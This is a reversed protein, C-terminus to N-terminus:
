RAHPPQLLISADGYGRAVAADRTRQAEALTAFPGVRVRWVAGATEVQGGFSRAVEVARPESSFAAVQVLLPQGARPVPMAAPAIRPPPRTSATTAPLLRRLARLLPEPTDLRAAAAEGRDLAAADALSPTMSRVRVPALPRDSLGLLRAAGTSLDIEREAVAPGRDTIRVLITRGTDLATVEAHSGLPLARHAATIRANAFSAGSATAKGELGDGYWSAYGVADYSAIAGAGATASPGTPTGAEPPLVPTASPAPPRLSVAPMEDDVQQQATVQTGGSLLLLAVLSARSPM